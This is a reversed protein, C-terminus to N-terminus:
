DRADIGINVPISSYASFNGTYSTAGYVSSYSYDLSGSGTVSTTTAFDENHQYSMTCGGAYGTESAAAGDDGWNVNESYNHEWRATNNILSGSNKSLTAKITDFGINLNWPLLTWAGGFYVPIPLEVSWSENGPDMDSMEMASDNPSSISCTGGTVWASLAGPILKTGQIYIKANGTHGNVKVYGKFHENPGMRRPTYITTAILDVRDGNILEGQGIGIGRYSVNYDSAALTAIGNEVTRASIAETGFEENAVGTFANVLANMEDFVNGYIYTECDSEATVYGVSAYVFIDETEPIHHLNLGIHTGDALEGSMYGILGEGKDTEVELLKGSAEYDFAGSEIVVEGNATYVGDDAKELRISINRAQREGVTFTTANDANKLIGSTIEANYSATIGDVAADAHVAWASTSGLVSIGIALVLASSIIRKFKKM